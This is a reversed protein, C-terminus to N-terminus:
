LRRLVRENAESLRTRLTNRLVPEVAQEGSRAVLKSVRDSINPPCRRECVSEELNELFRDRVEIEVLKPRRQAFRILRPQVVPEQEPDNSREM